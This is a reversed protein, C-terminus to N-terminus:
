NKIKEKGIELKEQSFIWNTAVEIETANDYEEDDFGIDTVSIRDM